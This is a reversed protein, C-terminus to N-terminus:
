RMHKTQIKHPFVLWGVLQLKISNCRDNGTKPMLITLVWIFRKRRQHLRETTVLPQTKQMQTGHRQHESFSHQSRCHFSCGMWILGSFFCSQSVVHSSIDSTNPASQSYRLLCLQLTETSYFEPTLSHSRLYAIHM